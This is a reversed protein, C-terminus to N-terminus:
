KPSHKNLENNHFYIFQKLYILEDDINDSIYPFESVIVNSYYDKIYELTENDIYKILSNYSEIRLDSKCPLGTTMNWSKEIYADLLQLFFVPDRRINKTLYENVFGSSGYEEIIWFIYSLSGIKNKIIDKDMMLNEILHALHNGVEIKEDKTFWNSIPESREQDEHKLWRFIKIKYNLNAIEICEKVTEVKDNSNEINMLLDNLLIASQTLTDAWILGDECPMLYSKQSIAISLKKSATTNLTASIARLKRVCAEANENTLVQELPNSSENKDWHEVREVLTRIEMDSIDSTPISYTFYRDYYDSSCINQNQRWNTLWDSGYTTNGFVSELKPFLNKLLEIFGDKNVNISNDLTSNVIKKIFSIEKENNTYGHESFVDSFLSKNNRLLEYLDPCFIRIGEILMFDVVNVEGKLIPLSFMLINGYLKAKRPTTLSDDFASNFSYLFEQVQKETLNIEAINLAENIGNFCLQRLVSKEALPLHLPVQIIKELFAEGSNGQTNSYRDQLSSAVIDKDFALIYATHKFDATLKVLRFLAHIENKDLRDVDDIQILVRKKAQELIKEIRNKFEDINPTSIFSTMIKGVEESGAISTLSPFIKKATDKLKDERTHLKVDLAEAIDNFFGMLLQEESGFRWPNFKICIVHNDKELSKEIFNLVSTKGDGWKGYLGIVISSPDTRKSIVQGIREAFKWRSFSDEEKSSIPADSSYNTINM